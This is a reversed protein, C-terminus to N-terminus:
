GKAELVNGSPVAAHIHAPVVGSAGGREIAAIRAELANDRAISALRDNGVVTNLSAHRAELEALTPVSVVPAAVMFDRPNRLTIGPVLWRVGNADPATRSAGFTPADRNTVVEWHLHPATSFGTSGAYGMLQGPRLLDGVKIRAEFGQLHAYLSWQATGVHDLMVHTGYDGPGTNLWAVKARQDVSDPNVVHAGPTPGNRVILDAGGHQYKGNIDYIAGFEGDIYGGVLPLRDFTVTGLAM